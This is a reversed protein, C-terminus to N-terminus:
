QTGVKVHLAANDDATVTSGPPVVVVCGPLEILCPGLLRSGPGPRESAYVPTTVPAGPDDFIVDRHGTEELPSGAPGAAALRSGAATAISRVSLVEFGAERFSSGRGFLAEYEHEFRDLLEEALARTAAAGGSARALPVDLHHAQGRYRVAATLEVAAAAGPTLAARARATVEDATRRLVEAHEDGPHQGPALRLYCTREATTRLPATGAGFASQATATPPVVFEDLGLEQCLSWAHSPGSGGGTILTFERPDHGREITVSRVLDAMSADLVARVAHAAAPVSIGLPTAVHRDLAQWAAAPDLRMGGAFHGPDIVGLVLDADTATPQAGGRGYCAPGPTSGASWPGVSLTGGAVSAISGGGAGISAVDVSPVRIDVGGFTVESVMLPSGDVVVGVDFSTGGIDMTLVNRRGLRTGAIAGAVVGSAPGSLLSRVPHGALAAAPEVGGACTTTLLPVRLGRARLQRELDALYQGAVPGLGANAATTSARAYEGVAPAVEHSLSVFAGPLEADILDRLAQEHVPNETAWLLCVAVAEVGKDALRRVVRRAAAIDLPVLVAGTRDIRETVEVVRTRPVLPATRGRLHYDSLQDQRLGAFGRRLRGIELVDGFGATTVLGTRAARGTLLANLGVTTGHGFRCLRPLLQDLRLGAAQAVADLGDLLGTVVDTTTPAKRVIERGDGTRLWVDTFSGGVDTGAQWDSPEDSVTEGAATAM